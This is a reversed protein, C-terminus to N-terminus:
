RHDVRIGLSGVLKGVAHLVMALGYRWQPAKGTLLRHFPRLGGRVLSAVGHLFMRGRSVGSEVSSLYASNGHWYHIYLQYGLTAREPLENEFVFPATAFRITLGEARAARYFV